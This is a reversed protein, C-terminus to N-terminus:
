VSLYTWAYNFIESKVCRLRLTNILYEADDQSIAVKLEREGTPTCGLLTYEDHWRSIRHLLTWKKVVMERDIECEGVVVFKIADKM